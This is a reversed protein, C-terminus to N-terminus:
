AYKKLTLHKQEQKKELCFVSLSIRMLSQLESTHEESRFLVHDLRAPDITTILRGVVRALLALRDKPQRLDPELLSINNRMSKSRCDPRKQGRATQSADYAAIEAYVLPETVQVPRPSSSWIPLACTQFGTMLACSTHRRRSSFFFFVLLFVTLLCALLEWSQAFCM